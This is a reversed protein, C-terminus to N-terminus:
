MINEGKEEKKNIKIATTVIHMNNEVKIKTTTELAEACVICM